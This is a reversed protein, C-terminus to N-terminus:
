IPIVYEKGLPKLLDRPGEYLGKGPPKQLDRPGAYLPIVFEKELLEQLDKLREYLYLLNRELLSGSPERGKMYTSCHEKWSVESPRQHMVTGKKQKESLLSAALAARSGATRFRFIWNRPQERGKM